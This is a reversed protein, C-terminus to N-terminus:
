VLTQGDGGSLTEYLGELTSIFVITNRRVTCYTSHLPSVVLMSLLRRSQGTM